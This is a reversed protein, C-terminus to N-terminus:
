SARPHESANQATGYREALARAIRGGHRKDYSAQADATSYRVPRVTTRRWDDERAWRRATAEHVHYLRAIGAMTLYLPAAM